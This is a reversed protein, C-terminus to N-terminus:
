QGRQRIREKEAETFPILDVMQEIQEQLATYTKNAQTVSEVLKQRVRRLMSIDRAIQQRELELLRVKRRGARIQQEIEKEM